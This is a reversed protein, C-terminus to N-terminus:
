YGLIIILRLFAFTWRKAMRIWLSVDTIYTIQVQWFKRWESFKELQKKSCVGFIIKKCPVDLHAGWHLWLLNSESFPLATKIHVYYSIKLLQRDFDYERRLYNYSGSPPGSIWSPDPRKSWSQRWEQCWGPWLSRWWMKAPTSRLALLLWSQYSHIFLVKTVPLTDKGPSNLPKWHM